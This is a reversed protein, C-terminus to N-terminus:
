EEEEWEDENEFCDEDLFDEINKDYQEELDYVGQTRLYYATM